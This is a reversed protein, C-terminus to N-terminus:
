RNAADLATLQPHSLAGIATLLKHFDEDTVAM